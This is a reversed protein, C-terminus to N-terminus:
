WIEIGRYWARRDKGPSRGNNREIRAALKAGGSNSLQDAHIRLKLGLKKAASLIRSSQEIDFYGSECFVDCFEALGDSTVRSLMENLVLDVYEDARIKRPIAHAGLFTPVIELPTEQNLRRMVRLIKLEDEVSLGYGSKSESRQREAACFGTQMSKRKRSFIPKVRQERKKLPQGFEAARRRSRSM